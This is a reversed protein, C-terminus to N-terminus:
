KPAHIGYFAADIAASLHRREARMRSVRNMANVSAADSHVTKAVHLAAAIQADLEILRATPNM